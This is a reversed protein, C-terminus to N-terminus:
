PVIARDRLIPASSLRGAGYLARLLEAAQRPLWGRHRGCDVCHLAYAHPGAGPGIVGICRGHCDRWHDCTRDLRVTLDIIPDSSGSSPVIAVPSSGRWWVSFDGFTRM